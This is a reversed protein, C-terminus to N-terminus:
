HEKFQANGHVSYSHQGRNHITDPSWLRSIGRRPLFAATRVGYSLETLAGAIGKATTCPSFMIEAGLPDEVTLEASRFFVFRLHCHTILPLLPISNQHQECRKKLPYPLSKMTMESFIEPLVEQKAGGGECEASCAEIISWM